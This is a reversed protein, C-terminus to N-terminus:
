LLISRIPHTVYFTFRRPYSHTLAPPSRTEFYFHTRQTSLLKESRVSRKMASSNELDVDGHDTSGRIRPKPWLLIFIRMKKIRHKADTARAASKLAISPFSYLFTVTLRTSGSPITSM